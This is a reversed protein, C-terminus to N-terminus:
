VQFLKLYNKDKSISASHLSGNITVYLAAFICIENHFRVILKGGNEVNYEFNAASIFENWGPPGFKEEIEKYSLNEKEFFELDNLSLVRVM